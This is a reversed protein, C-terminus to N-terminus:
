YDDDDDLRRRRRPPEDDYDDDRRSRRRPRDDYDDDYDDRRPRRYDDDRAPEGPYDGAFVRAMHAQLMCVLLVISYAVIILARIVAGATAAGTAVGGLGLPVRAVLNRIAPVVFGLEYISDGLQYVIALSASVVALIRGWNQVQLLGIGSIVFGVALLLRLVLTMVPYAAYGPVESTLYDNLDTRVGNITVDGKTDAAVAMVGCILLLGAFVFNLIAFTTVSGPRRRYM